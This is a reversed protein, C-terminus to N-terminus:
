RALGGGGLIAGIQYGLSAGSYRVAPPFLEAFLASQPGACCGLTFGLGAMALFMVPLIATDMLPFFLAAAVVLRRFQPHLRHAPRRPRIAVRQVGHRGDLGPM